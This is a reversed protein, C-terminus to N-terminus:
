QGLWRGQEQVLVKGNETVKLLGSELVTYTTNGNKFQYGLFQCPTVGDDCMRSLTRGNLELRNGSKHSQSRYSVNDCVVEGEECNREIEITYNDTVLTDGFAPTALAAISLLSLMRFKFM